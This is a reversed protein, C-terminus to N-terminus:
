RLKGDVRLRIAVPCHDSLRRRLADATDFAVREFSQPLIQAALDRGLVIQDIYGSFNQAVSCNRFEGLQAALTLDSGPPDADDIEAWFNQIQGQENRAMGRDRDLDRNFDGLVAFRRGAQAQADIWQELLPVQQALTSCEEKGHDLARRGCGSKLHVSLLRMERAEGPWLTLEVGRRVTERLSLERLDGSCRYPLGRRVAFGLNQVHRRASFCFRYGPFVRAAPEPGDVEQIAIVDANLQATV